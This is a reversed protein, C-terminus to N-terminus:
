DSADTLPTDTLETNEPDPELAEMVAGHEARAEQDIATVKAIQEPTMVWEKPLDAHCNTCQAFRRDVVLASCKPCRLVSDM